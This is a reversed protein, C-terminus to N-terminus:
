RSMSEGATSKATRTLLVQAHATILADGLYQGKERTPCDLYGEQTGLKVANKCIEFIEELMKEGSSVRCLKEEMPYHRVNILIEKIKVGKDPIIEAYRFGKYDFPEWACEGKGLTFEEEYLCGCRMDCRVRGIGDLEEGHRIIIKKGPEGEALFFLNGTVEEGADVFIRDERRSIEKPEKVGHWLMKTPQPYM